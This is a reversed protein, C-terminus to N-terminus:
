VYKAEGKDLMEYLTVPSVHLATKAATISPYTHGAVRIPRPTGALGRRRLGRHRYEVGTAKGRLEEPTPRRHTTVTCSGALRLAAELDPRMLVNEHAMGSTKKADSAM